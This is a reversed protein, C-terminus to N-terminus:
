YDRCGLSANPGSVVPQDGRLHVDYVPLERALHRLTAAIQRAALAELEHRFAVPEPPAGGLMSANEVLFSGLEARLFASVEPHAM